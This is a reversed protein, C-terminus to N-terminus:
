PDHNELSKVVRCFPRRTVILSVIWFRCAATDTTGEAEDSTMRARLSGGRSRLFSFFMLCELDIGRSSIMSMARVMRPALLDSERSSLPVTSSIRPVAKLTPQWTSPRDGFSMESSTLSPLMSLLFKYETHFCTRKTVLVGNGTGSSYIQRGSEDVQAILCPASRPGSFNFCTLFHVQHHHYGHHNVHCSLRYVLCKM